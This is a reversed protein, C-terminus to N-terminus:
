LKPDNDEHRRNGMIMGILFGFLAGMLAGVYLWAAVETRELM